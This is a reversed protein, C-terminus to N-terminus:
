RLLELLRMHARASVRTRRAMRYTSDGKSTHSVQDQGTKETHMGPPTCTARAEESHYKLPDSSDLEVTFIDFEDEDAEAATTPAQSIHDAIYMEKGKKYRVKLNYRQLRLLMRQLISPATLISKKFIAQIPKHSSEVTM